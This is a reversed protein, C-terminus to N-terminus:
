LYKANQTKGPPIWLIIPGSDHQFASLHFIFQQQDPMQSRMRGPQLLAVWRRHAVDRIDDPSVRRMVAISAWFSSFDM